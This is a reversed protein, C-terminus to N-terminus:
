YGREKYYNKLNREGLDWLQIRLLLESLTIVSKLRLQNVNHPVLEANAPHKMIESPVNNKFGDAIRYLHDWSVGTLNNNKNAPSYWGYKKILEKDFLSPHEINNKSFLCHYRYLAKATNKKYLKKNFSESINKCDESCFYRLNNKYISASFLTNCERCKRFSIKCHPFITKPPGNKIDKDKKKNTYITAYSQNLFTNYRKEYPILLGSQKCYKPNKYYEEMKTKNQEDIYAQSRSKGKASNNILKQRYAESVLPFDPYLSHLEQISSFGFFAINQKTIRSTTYDNKPSILYDYTIYKKYKM